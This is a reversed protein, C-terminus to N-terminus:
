FGGKFFRRGLSKGVYDSSHEKAHLLLLEHPNVIIIVIQTIIIIMPHKARLESGEFSM